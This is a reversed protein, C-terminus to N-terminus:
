FQVVHHIPPDPTSLTVGLGRRTHRAERTACRGRILGLGQTVGVGVGPHGRVRVGPNGRRRGRGRPAGAAVSTGDSFKLEKPVITWGLRVGQLYCSSNTM